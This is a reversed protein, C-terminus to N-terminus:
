QKGLPNVTPQVPGADQKQTIDAQRSLEQRFKKNDETTVRSMEDNIKLDPDLVGGRQLESLVTESSLLKANHLNVLQAIGSPDIPRNILSDNLVIGSEPTLSQLEGSYAAWLKMVTNFASVKNRVLSAVQSAVQSARLSAETATKINAGYLFNLGSRDM